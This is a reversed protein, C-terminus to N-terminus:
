AQETRAEIPSLAMRDNLTKIVESEGVPHAM